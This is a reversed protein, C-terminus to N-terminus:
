HDELTDHIMSNSTVVKLGISDINCQVFQSRTRAWRVAYTEQQKTAKGSLRFEHLLLIRLEKCSLNMESECDVDMDM